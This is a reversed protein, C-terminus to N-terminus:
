ATPRKLLYEASTAGVDFVGAARSSTESRGADLGIPITLAPPAPKRETVDRTQGCDGHRATKSDGIQREAQLKDASWKVFGADKPEGVGVLSRIGPEVSM